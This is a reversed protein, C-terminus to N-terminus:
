PRVGHTLLYYTGELIWVDEFDVDFGTDPCM